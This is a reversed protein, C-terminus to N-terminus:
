LELSAMGKGRVDFQSTLDKMLQFLAKDKQKAELMVDFDEGFDRATQLLDYFDRTDIYDAHARFNKADRPSSFHIKPREGNWTAIFEPWIQALPEGDNLCAHHHADLVMPVGLTKCLTLADRAGFTKDDNEIILRQRVAEPLRQFNECFRAFAAAKNKYSGGIHVVLKAEEGLRMLEFLRTHYQLGAISAKVVDESPSNLLTFHDPHFSVRMQHAKIYAGIEEFREKFDAAYDWDSFEPHAALPILKSTIRFVHVQHFMNYKLVRYLRELNIGTLNKLKEYQDRRKEIKMLNAYTITKNPSGELINLAMAVYGLRVIM